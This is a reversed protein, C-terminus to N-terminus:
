RFYLSAPPSSRKGLPKFDDTCLNINSNQKSNGDPGRAQLKGPDVEGDKPFVRRDKGPVEEEQKRMNYLSDMIPKGLAKLM